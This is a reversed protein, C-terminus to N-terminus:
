RRSSEKVGFRMVGVRWDTLANEDLRVRTQRAKFRVSTPNSLDYPGHEIEEENPYFAGYFTAKVDGQTKEDPIIRQVYMLRDGDGIEVPGSELYPHLEETTLGGGDESLLVGGEESLLYFGGVEGAVSPRSSLLLEHEFAEGSPALMVPSELAGADFGASRRLKGINWHGERYNYVVYRDCENSTASPYFWWVEGFQANTKGWVKVSQAENFDGFVFDQVPCAIPQVFGDYVFFNKHGMWMAKTDFTVAANPSVIGCKEGMLVFRYLLTGGIYQMSHLDTTTWLLTEAKTRRGCVLAGDTTLEFDGATTVVPGDGYDYLLSWITTTEQAPWQLKRVNGNVGLAVLFREPTVVVGTVSEPANTGSVPTPLIGIEANWVYLINDSTSAGVLSSGFTDLQWMSADLMTIATAGLGYVGTGYSGAGYTGVTTAPATDESGATYGAPTIDHLVGGALCYLHSTTAFVILTADDTRWALAARPVGELQPLATGDDLRVRRWGGVPKITSEIFRVLQADYWAGRSQYKTGNRVIGPPLKLSILKDSM